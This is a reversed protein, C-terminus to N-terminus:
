KIDENIKFYMGVGIYQIYIKSMMLANSIITSSVCRKKYIYFYIFIINNYSNRIKSVFLLNASIVHSIDQDCLFLTLYVCLQIERDAIKNSANCNILRSYSIGFWVQM